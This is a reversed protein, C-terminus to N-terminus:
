LHREKISSFYLGGPTDNRGGPQNEGKGELMGSTCGCMCVHMHVCEAATRHMQGMFRLSLRQKRVLQGVGAHECSDSDDETSKQGSLGWGLFQLPVAKQPWFPGKCSMQDVLWMQHMSPDEATGWALAEAGGLDKM